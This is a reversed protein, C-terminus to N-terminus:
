SHCYVLYEFRERGCYIAGFERCTRDKPVIEEDRPEQM